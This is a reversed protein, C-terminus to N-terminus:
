NSYQIEPNKINKNDKLAEETKKLEERSYIGLRYFNINNTKSFFILNPNEELTGILADSEIELINSSLSDNSNFSYEFLRFLKTKKMFKDLYFSFLIVLIITIVFVISWFHNAGMAIGITILAFYIVLELPSKVPNRFRVISLAGIMGLSLALNDSIVKTIVFTTAPLLLFTIFYTITNVWKQKVFLLTVYILFGSLVTGSFELFSQSLLINM